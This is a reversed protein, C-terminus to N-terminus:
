STNLSYKIKLECITLFQSFKKVDFKIEEAFYIKSMTM